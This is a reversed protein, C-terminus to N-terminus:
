TKRCVLSLATIDDSQEAGNAFTAVNSFLEAVSIANASSIFKELRSEGYLEGAQNMAETVGDTYLLIFDGDELRCASSKYKMDSMAALAIGGRTRLWEVTGGARKVIPPNHGANVFELNGTKPDFVGIWATVFMEAYNQRCLLDNARAVAEALEPTRSMMTQLASKSRMMFMAAPVGKGSVDAIVIAIRGDDFKYSDFFDGGVEKAPLMKATIECRVDKPLTEPLYAEQIKQAMMLENHLRKDAEDRLRDIKAQQKRFRLMVMRVFFLFAFVLLLIIACQVAAPGFTESLPILNFIRWEGIDMTRIHCWNGMVRAFKIDPTLGLENIQRGIVGSKKNSAVAIKWNNTSAVLQFDSTGISTGDRFMKFFYLHFDRELSTWYFGLQVFGSHDPLAVGGYKVTVGDLGSARFPEGIFEINGSVLDLYRKAKDHTSFDFSKLREDNAQVIKGRPDVVCLEDYDAEEIISRFADPSIEHITKIREAVWIADQHLMFDIQSDIVHDIQRMASEGREVSATEANHLSLAGVVASFILFALLIHTSNSSFNRRLSGASRLFLTTLVLALLLGLAEPMFATFIIECCRGLRSLGMLLDFSLHLGEFIFGLILAQVLSPRRGDRFWVRFAAAILAVLFTAMPCWTAAGVGFFPTVAREAAAIAGAVIGATPGFFLAAALVPADRLSLAINYESVSLVSFSNAVVALFGFWCGLLWKRNPFFRNALWAGGATMLSMIFLTIM